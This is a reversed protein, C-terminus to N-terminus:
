RNTVGFGGFFSGCAGDPSGIQLVLGVLFVVVQGM